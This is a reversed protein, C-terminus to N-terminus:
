NVGRIQDVSLPTTSIFLNPLFTFLLSSCTTICETYNYMFQFTLNHNNFPSPTPPLSLHISRNHSLPLSLSSSPSSSSLPIPIFLIPFMNSPYPSLSLSFSLSLSLYPPSLLLSLLYWAHFIHPPLSSVQSCLPFTSLTCEYM